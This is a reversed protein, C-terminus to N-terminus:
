RRARADGNTVTTATWSRDNDVPPPTRQPPRRARRPNADSVTNNSHSEPSAPHLPQHVANGHSHRHHCRGKGHHRKALVEPLAAQTTGSTAGPPSPVLDPPFTDLRPQCGPRQAARAAPHQRRPTMRPGAAPPPAPPSSPTRASASGNGGSRACAHAKAQPGTTAAGYPAATIMITSTSAACAAAAPRAAARGQSATGPPAPPLHRRRRGPRPPRPEGRPGPHQPLLQRPQQRQRVRRPPHQNRRHRRAPVAQGHQLRHGGPQAAPERPQGRHRGRPPRASDPPHQSAGATGTRPNLVLRSGRVGDRRRLPAPRAM